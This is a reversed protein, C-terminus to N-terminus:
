AASWRAEVTVTRTDSDHQSVRTDTITATVTDRITSLEAYSDRRLDYVETGIAAAVPAALLTAVVTLVSVLAQVRDTTRILPHPGLLRLLIPWRPLRVTYTDMAAEEACRHTAGRHGHPGHPSMSTGGEESSSWRSDGHQLPIAAALNGWNSLTAAQRQRTEVACM